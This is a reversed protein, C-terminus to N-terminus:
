DYFYLHLHDVSRNFNRFVMFLMVPLIIPLLVGVFAINLFFVNSHLWECPKYNAYKLTVAYSVLTLQILLLGIDIWLLDPNVAVNIALLPVEIIWLPGITNKIKRYLLQRPSQYNATLMQRSECQVYFMLIYSTIMYFVVAPVYALWCLGIAVLLLVAFQRYRSRLGAIWEFNHAPVWQSLQPLVTKQLKRGPIWSIGIPLLLLMVYYYWSSFVLIPIGFVQILILYEMYINWSPQTVQKRIFSLDGREMHLSATAMLSLFCLYIGNKGVDIRELLIFYLLVSMVGVFIVYIPGMEKIESLVQICRVRVIRFM